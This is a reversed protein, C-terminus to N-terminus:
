SADRVLSAGSGELPLPASLGVRGLPDRVVRQVEVHLTDHAAGHRGALDAAHGAESVAASRAEVVSVAGDVLYFHRVASRAASPLRVGVMWTSGRDM